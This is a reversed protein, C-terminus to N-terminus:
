KSKKYSYPSHDYIEVVQSIKEDLHDFHSKMYRPLYGVTCSEVGNRIVVVKMAPETKREEIQVNDSKFFILDDVALFKGCCEHSCCSRGNDPCNLGVIEGYSSM